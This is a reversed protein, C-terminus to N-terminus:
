RTGAGIESITLLAQHAIAPEAHRDIKKAFGNAAAKDGLWNARL